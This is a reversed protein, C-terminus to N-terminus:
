AKGNKAIIAEAVNNPVDAYHDLEMTSAARGQTMSRIDTTYGFLEALPVFAKVVKAGFRDEMSEVRGRRASLDGIIDGMFEEPTVVELNMIPELIVPGAKKVGAQVGMSGAIKFAMESSDVDHYSGDYLEVKVDVVPYGALVGNLM